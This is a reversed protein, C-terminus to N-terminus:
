SWRRMELNAVMLCSRTYWIADRDAASDEHGEGWRLGDNEALEESEAEDRQAQESGGGLWSLFVM